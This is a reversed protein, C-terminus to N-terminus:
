GFPLDEDFFDDKELFKKVTTQFTGGEYLELIAKLKKLEESSLEMANHPYFRELFVMKQVETTVVISYDDKRAELAEKHQTTAAKLHLEVSRSGPLSITINIYKNM